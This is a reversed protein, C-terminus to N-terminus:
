DDRALGERLRAYRAELVTIRTDLQEAAALAARAASAIQQKGPQNPGHAAQLVVLAEALPFVRAKHIEEVAETYVDALNQELVEARVGVWFSRISSLLSNRSNNLREYAANYEAIARGLTAAAERNEGAYPAVLRFNDRLDKLELLYSDMTEFLAPKVDDQKKQLEISNRLDSEKLELLSIIRRVGESLSDSSADYRVGNQRLTNELQVFRAALVDNIYAREPKGVVIPVRVGGDRPVALQGRLPYLVELGSSLVTVEVETPSGSLELQFEGSDFVEPEGHGVVRLRVDRVPEGNLNVVRGLLRTTGQGSLPAALPLLLALVWATVPRKV